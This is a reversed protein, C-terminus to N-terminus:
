REEEEDLEVEEREGEVGEAAMGETHLRALDRVDLDVYGLDHMQRIFAATVGHMRLEAIEKPSLDGLGLERLDDIYQPTVGFMRFETLERLSLEGYGLSRMEEVFEANVGHMRAELLERIEPRKGHTERQASRRERRHEHRHRDGGERRGAGVAVPEVGLADLLEAAQQANIKGQSLMELVQMREERMM